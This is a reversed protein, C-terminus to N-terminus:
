SHEKNGFALDGADGLGPVIYSKVTLENDVDAAWLTYDKSCINKRVYEVGERSAIVTIFHTHKPIGKELLARYSLLMSAGTALMPDCILLTKGELSPCNMYEVKITFSGDKSYKRYASVFACDAGDFYNLLGTQLPLGARLIGAIVIEENHLKLNAIGLPTTIEKETYKFTRSVEMAMIEGVRELNRRFRMRDQQRVECRIEAMITSLISNDESLIRIGPQKNM